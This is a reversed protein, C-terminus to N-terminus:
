AKLLCCYIKFSSRSRHLNQIHTQLVRKDAHNIFCSLTIEDFLAESTTSLTLIGNDRKPILLSPSFSSHVFIVTFRISLKATQFEKIRIRVNKKNQICTFIEYIASQTPFFM